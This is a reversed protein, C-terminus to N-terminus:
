SLCRADAGFSSSPTVSNQPLPDGLTARPVTLSPTIIAFAGSTSSAASRSRLPLYQKRPGSTRPV